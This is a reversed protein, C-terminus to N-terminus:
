QHNSFKVARVPILDPGRDVCINVTCEKTVVAELVVEQGDLRGLHWEIEPVLDITLSKGSMPGPLASLNCRFGGDCGNLWGRIRLKQGDLEKINASVQAVSYIDQEVSYPMASVGAIGVGGAVLFLAIGSM